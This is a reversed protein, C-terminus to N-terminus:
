INECSPFMDRTDLPMVDFLTAKTRTDWEL